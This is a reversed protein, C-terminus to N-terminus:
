SPASGSRLAAMAELGSPTSAWPSSDDARDAAEVGLVAGVQVEVLDLREAGAGLDRDQHQGRALADLELDRRGVDDVAEPHRLEQELPVHHGVGLRVVGVVDELDALDGSVPANTPRQVSIHPVYWEIIFKSTRTTSGLSKLAYRCCRM